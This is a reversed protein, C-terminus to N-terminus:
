QMRTRTLSIDSDITSGTARLLKGDLINVNGEGHITGTKRSYVLVNCLLTVGSTSHAVVGDRLTITDAAQDIWAEPAAATLKSGNKDFFTARVDRLIAHASGQAGNSEYSRALLEYQVKNDRLQQVFRVPRAATGRGTIRLPPLMSSPTPSPAAGSQTPQPNCATLGLGLVLVSLLARKM